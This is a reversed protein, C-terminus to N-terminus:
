VKFPLIKILDLYLSFSDLYSLNDIAKFKLPKLILGSIKNEFMLQREIVPLSEKETMFYVKIAGFRIDSRLKKVFALGERSFNLLIIQPYGDYERGKDFYSLNGLADKEDDAFSISNKLKHRNFENLLQARASFDPEIILVQSDSM